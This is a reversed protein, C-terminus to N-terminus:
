LLQLTTFYSHGQRCCISEMLGFQSNKTCMSEMLGFKSNKTSIITKTLTVLDNLSGPTMQFSKMLQTHM